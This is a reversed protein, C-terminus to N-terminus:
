TGEFQLVVNNPASCPMQTGCDDVVAWSKNPDEIFIVAQDQVDYFKTGKFKHIPIYDSSYPNRKMAHQNMGCKTTAKFKHFEVGALNVQAGWSGNSKIKYIPLSSPM